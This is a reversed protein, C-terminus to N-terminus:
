AEYAHTQNCQPANPCIYLKTPKRLFHKETHVVMPVGCAPCEPAENLTMFPRKDLEPETATPANNHSELPLPESITNTPYVPQMRAASSTPAAAAPAFTLKQPTPINKAATPLNKRIRTALVVKLFQEGDYLHIPKGEAWLRAADTITGTTIIAGGNADSARLTGYFDRVVPEGIKGRYRKCQVLYTDGRQSRVILDIGHDGTGGVVQVTNGQARYTDAVMEEFDAPSLSRIEELTSATFKKRKEELLLAVMFPFLLLGVALFLSTDGPEGFLHFTEMKLLYFVLRLIAFFGWSIILGKLGSRMAAGFGSQRKGIGFFLALFMLPWLGVIFKAAILLLDLFTQM